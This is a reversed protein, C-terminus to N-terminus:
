VWWMVSCFLFLAVLIYIPDYNGAFVVRADRRIIRGRIMTTTSPKTRVARSDWTLEADRYLHKWFCTHALSCVKPTGYLYNGLNIYMKQGECVYWAAANPRQVGAVSWTLGDGNWAFQGYTNKTASFTVLLSLDNLLREQGVVGYLFKEPKEGPGSILQVLQGDVVQFQGATTYDGLVAASASYLPKSQMYKHFNPAAVGRIWYYGTQLDRGPGSGAPASTPTPTPTGSRVSTALTTTAPQEPVPTPVPEPEPQPAAGPQCQSYYESPSTLINIFSCFSISTTTTSSSPPSVQTSCLRRHECM